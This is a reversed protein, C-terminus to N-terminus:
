YWPLSRNNTNFNIPPQNTQQTHFIPQGYGYIQQNQNVNANPNPLLGYGNNPYGNTNSMGKNQTKLLGSIFSEEEIEVSEDSNFSLTQNNKVVHVEPKDCLNDQSLWKLKDYYADINKIHFGLEDIDMIYEDADFIDCVDNICSVVNIYVRFYSEFKPCTIKTSKYKFLEKFEDNDGKFDFIKSSIENLLKWTKKRVSSFKSQFNEEFIGMRFFSTKLKRNYFVNSFELMDTSIMEVEKKTKKDISEAFESIFKLSKTSVDEKMESYQIIWNLICAIKYSISMSTAVYFWRQDETEGLIENFPNLITAEDDTIIKKPLILLTRKIKDASNIVVREDGSKDSRIIYGDSDCSYLNTSNVIFEICKEPNIKSLIREEKINRKNGRSAIQCLQM